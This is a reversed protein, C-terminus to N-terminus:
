QLTITKNVDNVTLTYTGPTGNFYFNNDGDNANIFNSDITYGNGQYTPYNIGSGWNGEETFFRFAENAFTVQGSYIGNGICPLAVPSGWGWGAAPVGAGVLWLQDYDCALQEPGLTITKNIDDVTLYYTGPTGNFYFNSDGDMANIFDSDITYGNGEYTPYNIGSGWNGEETFFRFAENSFTVNGSYTGNGSCTLAVPSGWGWGADPVGAGVLWLQDYNCNPGIVPPGLTITKSNTNISLFYEGATGVFQFNSDGDNANVFLPDITYGIAEYYLYNQGSGWDGETTFFRFNGGNDPSFNVNGSYVGGQLSLEIPSNWSWGADPAGAGVIYLIPPLEVTYPTVSVTVIESIRELVAGGENTIVAKIRIDLDAAVEPELGSDLAVTNLDAHTTTLSSGNTSTGIAIPTEFDTGSVASQITYEVDIGLNSDLIADSWEVTMAIDNQSTILLVFLEGGMPNTIEPPDTPYTTVLFLISNSMTGGGNVRVYIAIDKFTSAGAGRIATNLDEVSISFSNTSTSGLSVTSAFEPDLSMEVDYSTSGTLDDNWSITFASNTPTGFNLFVSSIGPEQLVLAPEPSTIEFTEETECATFVLTVALLLYSLKNLFLKM